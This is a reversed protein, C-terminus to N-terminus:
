ITLCNIENNSYLFASLLMPNDSVILDEIKSNLYPRKLIGTEVSEIIECQELIRFIVQRMKAVTQDTVTELEPHDVMKERFFENFTSKGIKERQNYYAERVAENIFDFVFAHAKCIALLIIQRQIAVPSEVLLKLERENLAEMRQKMLALYRLNSSRKDKQMINEQLARDKIKKWDGDLDIYLEAMARTENIMAAGATFSMNYPNPKNKMM